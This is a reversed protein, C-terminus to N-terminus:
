CTAALGGGKPAPLELVPLRGSTICETLTLVPDGVGRRALTAILSCWAAHAEAGAATRSCQSVKRAIVAGRLDREARNNTPEIAPQELFRLLHGRDHQRGIGNLLRDLYPNLHSEPTLVADVAALIRRSAEPHGDTQGRHYAHWLALADRLLGLLAEAKVRSAEPLYSLTTRINRILHSLCKQQRVTIM